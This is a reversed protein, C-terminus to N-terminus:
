GAPDPMRKVAHGGALLLGPAVYGGRQPAVAGVSRTAQLHLDSIRIDCRLGQAADIVSRSPLANAGCGGQRINPAPAPRWLTAATCLHELETPRHDGHPTRTAPVGDQLDNSWVRRCQSM